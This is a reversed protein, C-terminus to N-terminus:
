VTVRVPVDLEAVVTLRLSAEPVVSPAVKPPVPESVPVGMWILVSPPVVQVVTVGSALPLKVALM